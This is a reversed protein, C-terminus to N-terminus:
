PKPCFVMKKDKKKKKKPLLTKFILSFIIQLFICPLIFFAQQLYSQWKVKSNLLNTNLTVM